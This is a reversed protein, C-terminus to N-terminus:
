LIHAILWFDFVSQFHESTYPIFEQLSESSHILLVSVETVYIKIKLNIAM